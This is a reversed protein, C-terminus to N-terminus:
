LFVTVAGSGAYFYIYLPGNLQIGEPYYRYESKEMARIRMKESGTSDTGQLIRVELSGGDPTVEIGKLLYGSNTGVATSSSVIQPILSM